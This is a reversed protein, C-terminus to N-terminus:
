PCDNGFEALVALLDDLEVDGDGDTDGDAQTAGSTAGFNALVTLLDALDTTGDGNTDTTCLSPEILEALYLADTGDTFDIKVATTTGEISYPFRHSVSQVTKGDLIDGKRVVPIYDGDIWAWIEDTNTDTNEWIVVTRGDGAISLSPNGNFGSFFGGGPRPTFETAIPTVDGTTNDYMLVARDFNATNSVQGQWAVRDGDISSEDFSDALAGYPEGIWLGTQVAAVLGNGDNFDTLLGSNGFTDGANVTFRGNRTMPESFSTYNAGVTGTFDSASNQDVIPTIVGTTTDLKFMGAIGDTSEADFFVVNNDRGWEAFSDFTAGGGGPVLTSLDVLTGIPGTGDDARDYIGGLGGGSLDWTVRGDALLELDFSNNGTLDTETAIRTVVGGSNVTFVGEITEFPDGPDPFRGEFCLLGGKLSPTESDFSAFFTGAPEGPVQVNDGTDLYKTLQYHQAQAAGALAVLAIAAAPIRISM